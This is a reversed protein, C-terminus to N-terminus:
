LFLGMGTSLVGDRISNKGVRPCSSGNKRSNLFSSLMSWALIKEVDPYRNDFERVIPALTSFDIIQAIGGLSQAAGARVIPESDRMGARALELVEQAHSPGSIAAIGGLSQAVGSRVEGHRGDHVGARALELIVQAHAPGLVQAIGGFSQAVGSRVEWPNNDQMGARYLELIEHVYAPGLAQAISGLSRAM